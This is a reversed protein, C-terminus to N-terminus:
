AFLFNQNQFIMEFNISFPPLASLEWFFFLSQEENMKFFFMPFGELQFYPWILNCIFSFMTVRFWYFTPPLIM